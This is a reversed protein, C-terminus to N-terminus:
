RISVQYVHLTSYPPSSYRLKYDSTFDPPLSLPATSRCITPSPGRQFTRERPLLDASGQDLTISDAPGEKHIGNDRQAQVASDSSLSRYRGGREVQISSTKPVPTCLPSKNTSPSGARLFSFISPAKINQPSRSPSLPNTLAKSSDQKELPTNESCHHMWWPTVWTVRRAKKGEVSSHLKKPRNELSDSFKREVQPQFTAPNSTSTIIPTAPPTLLSSITVSTTPSSLTLTTPKGGTISSSAPLTCVPDYDTKSFSNTASILTSMTKPHFSKAISPYSREFGLLTATVTKIPTPSLAQPHLISSTKSSLAENSVSKTAELLPSQSAFSQYDESNLSACGNFKLLNNNQIQQQRDTPTSPSKQNVDHKHDQRQSM